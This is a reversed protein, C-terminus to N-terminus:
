LLGLSERAQPSIKGLRLMRLHGLAYAGVVDELLEVVSSKGVREGGSNSSISAKV